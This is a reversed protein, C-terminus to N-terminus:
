ARQTRDPSGVYPAAVDVLPRDLDDGYCSRAVLLHERMAVAVAAADGHRLADVIATHRAHPHAAVATDAQSRVMMDFCFGEIALFMTTLVPNGAARAIGSHLRIDHEARVIPSEAREIEGDLRNLETLEAPSINRAAMEALTVELVLRSEILDSPTAGARLVASSLGAMGQRSDGLPTVFTGRGQHSQLLGREVLGTIVERVASRSIGYNEALSRETPIGGGAPLSGDLIARGLDAELRLRGDTTRM